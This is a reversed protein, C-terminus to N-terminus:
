FMRPWNYKAHIAAYTKKFRFHGNSDHYAQMAKDEYRKSPSNSFYKKEESPKNKSRPQFMLVLIM